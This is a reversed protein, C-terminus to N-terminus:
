SPFLSLNLFFHSPGESLEFVVSCDPKGLASCTTENCRLVKQGSSRRVPLDVFWSGQRTAHSALKQSEKLKESALDFSFSSRHRVRDVRDNPRGIWGTSKAGDASVNRRDCLFLWRKREISPHTVARRERTQRRTTPRGTMGSVIDSSLDIAGKRRYRASSTSSEPKRTESIVQQKSSSGAGPLVRVAYLVHACAVCCAVLQLHCLSKFFAPFHYIWLVNLVKSM